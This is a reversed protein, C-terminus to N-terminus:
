CNLNPTYPIGSSIEGKWKSWKFSESDLVDDECFLSLQWWGSSRCLGGTADQWRITWWPLTDLVQQKEEPSLTLPPVPRVYGKEPEERQNKWRYFGTRSVALAYCAPKIGVDKALSDTTRMLEERGESRPLAPIDRCNKKSGRHYTRSKEVKGAAKFDGKGTRQYPPCISWAETSQSREEQIFPCRIHRARGSSVLHDFQFLVSRGQASPRWNAKTGQLCRGGKLIRRKYEATLSRRTAKEPVETDPVVPIGRYGRSAVASPIGTARRSGEMKEVKQNLNM